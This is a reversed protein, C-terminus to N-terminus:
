RKLYADDGRIWDERRPTFVDLAVSDELVEVGHPENAALALSEGAAVDIEHGAVTFRLRGTLVTTVQENSHEHVPVRAGAKMELRAITYLEAHYVQRVLLPNMQERGAKSWDIHLM